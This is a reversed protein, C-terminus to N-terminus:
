FVRREIKKLASPNKSLHRMAVALKQGWTLDRLPMNAERWSVLFRSCEDQLKGVAADDTVALNDRADTYYSIQTELHSITDLDPNNKEEELYIFGRIIGTVDNVLDRAVEYAIGQDQSWQPNPKSSIPADWDTM